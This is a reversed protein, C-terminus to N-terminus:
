GRPPPTLVGPLYDGPRQEELSGRWLRGVRLAILVPTALALGSTMFAAPTATGAPAQWGSEVNAARGARQDRIDQPPPESLDGSLEAVGHRHLGHTHLGHTHEAGVESGHSHPFVPHLVQGLHDDPVCWCSVPASVSLGAVILLALIFQYAMLGRVLTM